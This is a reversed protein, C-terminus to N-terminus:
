PKSWALAPDEEVYERLTEIDEIRAMNQRVSVGHAKLRAFARSLSEPKMGLRGAILVKDYPLTVECPGETCGSLELLFEAVRQAGTQAKLQEVQAVLSHLHAFTASLISIAVEPSERIMRLFIEAEIRILTCDTVAEASVPYTDHRFAVAEGFSSGKTFTGVIAEAGNPAIRYLKVWGEAVIYIATAREGQLFITAGRDFSRSHAGALLQGRIEQPVSALLLSRGAITQFETKM